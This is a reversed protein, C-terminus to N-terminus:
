GRGAAGSLSRPRDDRPRTRRLVWIAGTTGVFTLLAAGVILAIEASTRAPGLPWALVTGLIAYGLQSPISGLLSGLAFASLRTPTAGFAFNLISFPVVPAVRLLLVLRLGGRGIARAARALRGEGRALAGPDRAILRGVLFACCAGVTAAPVGLAAGRLAGHAAGAAVTLPSVPLGLLAAVLYLAAHVLVGGPGAGRAAELWGSTRSELSVFRALVLAAALLAAGVAARRAIGRGRPGILEEAHDHPASV